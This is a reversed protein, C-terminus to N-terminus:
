LVLNSHRNSTGLANVRNYNIIKAKSAGTFCYLISNEASIKLKLIGFASFDLNRDKKITMINNKIRSPLYCSRKFLIDMMNANLTVCIM